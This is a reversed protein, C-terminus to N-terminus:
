IEIQNKVSRKQVRNIGEIIAKIEEDSYEKKNKGIINSIAQVIGRDFGLPIVMEESEQVYEIEPFLIGLDVGVSHIGKEFKDQINFSVLSNIKAGNVYIAEGGNKLRVIKVKDKEIKIGEKKTKSM